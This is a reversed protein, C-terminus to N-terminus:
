VFGHKAKMRRSDPDIISARPAPPDTITGDKKRRRPPGYAVEDKPRPGRPGNGAEVAADYAAQKAAQADLMEQRAAADREDLQAKSKKIRELREARRRLQPPLDDGRGGGDPGHEADEAEDIAVQEAVMQEALQAALADFALQEEAIQHALADATYSKAWSANAAIKTGDIAIVGLRVMGAQHCLRLVQTFVGQVAVQHVKVFRSITSHDPVLLGTIVKFGADRTCAREIQRSSTVGVAHAYLVLAIMMGPDYAAAGQGNARYRGYFQSLDLQDVVDLVHWVLDDEPLWERLDVPLLMVQDRQPRRLNRGM